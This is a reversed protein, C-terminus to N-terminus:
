KLVRMVTCDGDYIMSSDGLIGGMVVEAVAAAYSNCDGQIIDGPKQLRCLLVNSFFGLIYGSDIDVILGSPNGSDDGYDYYYKGSVSQLDDCGEEQVFTLWCQFLPNESDQAQIYVNIERFRFGNKNQINEM